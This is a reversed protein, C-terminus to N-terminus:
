VHGRCFRFQEAVVVRVLFDEVLFDIQLRDFNSPSLSLLELVPGTVLAVDPRTLTALPKHLELLTRTDNHGLRELETTSEGALYWTDPHSAPRYPMGASMMACITGMFM